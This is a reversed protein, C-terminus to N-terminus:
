RADSDVITKVGNKIYIGETPESIKRGFLDYLVDEEDDDTTVPLLGTTDREGAPVFKWTTASGRYQVSHTSAASWFHDDQGIHLAYGDDTLAIMFAAGEYKNNSCLYNGDIGVAFTTGLNVILVKGDEGSPVLYFIYRDDNIDLEDTTKLRGRTNDVTCWTAYRGDKLFYCQVRSLDTTVTPLTVKKDYADTAAMVADTLETLLLDQLAASAEAARIAKTAELLRTLLAILDVGEHPTVDDCLTLPDRAALTEDLIADALLLEHEVRQQLVATYRDDVVTFAWPSATGDTVGIVEKNSNYGLYLGEQNAVRMKFNGKGLPELVFATATATSAASAKVRAGSTVAGVYRGEVPHYIYWADNGASVLQWQKSPAGAADTLSGKLGTSLFNATYRAYTVLALSYLNEEHVPICAGETRTTTATADDLMVSWAGYSRVTQDRNTYAANAADYLTQLDDLYSAVYWGVHYGDADGLALVDATAKLSNKLATLQQQETGGEATSRVVVDTGDAQCAVIRLPCGAVGQPLTFTLFNSGYLLQGSQRDYVKFGVAGSGGSLSVRNDNLTYLYGEAKVSRDRFDTYHGVQGASSGTVGNALKNGSGGDTRAVGKIRDEIFAIDPAKPYQHAYALFADIEKQTNTIDFDGYDDVHLHNTPTLFGWFQFFESLDMQAVDCANRAFCLVDENGTVSRKGQARAALPKARMAQFLRPYFTTDVGAEHFYLYLQWYMRHTSGIDRTTWPKGAAYDDFIVKNADGRSQYKGLKNLTLNSFLNNSSEGTGILEIAYQHTHGNEHGPGWCNDANAMMKTYPLLNRIYTAAYQTRYDTASQYGDSLSIACALNNCLSPVVDDVGLLARQWGVMKDWWGIADSITNQCCDSATVYERNLNMLINDGKVQIVKSQSLHQSIDVWDADTHVGKEYFGDVRGGEIHIDLAPYDAIPKTSDVTTKVVYQVFLMTEGDVRVANLGKRLTYKSGSIGTGSVAELTLTADAPIDSGVFVLLADTPVASIGTPNNIRCWKMTMLQKGWYDPDSYAKYSRVRFEEERHTWANNKVKVALDGFVAPVGSLRARLDDDSLGACDPLLQTCVDDAFVSALATQYASRHGNIDNVLAQAEDRQAKYEQYAAQCLAVAEESVSVETLSWQNGSAAADWWLVVNNSADCHLGNGGSSSTSINYFSGNQKIYFNTETSGTTFTESMSGQNQIFNGTYANMLSFTQGHQVLKWLQTYDTNSNGVACRVRGDVWDERMVLNKKGDNDRQNTFRFYKGDVPGGAMLFSVNLWLAGVTMVVWKWTVRNSIM